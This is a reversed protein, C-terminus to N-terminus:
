ATSVGTGRREGGRLAPRSATGGVRRARGRLLVFPDFQSDFVGRLRANQEEVEATKQQLARLAASAIWARPRPRLGADGAPRQAQEDFAHPEAAYVMLAGDIEGQSRVPLSISSSCPRPRPPRAGRRSSRARRRLSHRVQTTGTRIATGTPGQGLPGDGWSIEIRDVYDRSPGASARHAVTRATTTWGPATGPWPTAARPSSRRACRSRAPGDEDDVRALVRNGESLVSLARLADDRETTDQM